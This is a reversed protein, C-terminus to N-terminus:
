KRCEKARRKMFCRPCEYGSAKIYQGRAINWTEGCTVCEAYRKGNKVFASIRIGDVM